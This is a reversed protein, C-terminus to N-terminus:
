MYICTYNYIGLMSTTSKIPPSQYTGSSPSVIVDDSMTDSSTSIIKGGRVKVVDVCM